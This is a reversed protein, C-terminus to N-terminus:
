KVISISKSYTKGNYTARVGTKFTGLKIRPMWVGMVFSGGGIGVLELEVGDAIRVSLAAPAEDARMVAKVLEETPRPPVHSLIDESASLGDAAGAVGTLCFLCLAAIRGWVDRNKTTKM